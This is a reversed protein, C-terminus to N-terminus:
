EKEKIHIILRDEKHLSSPLHYVDTIRTNLISILKNKSIDKWDCVDTNNHPGKGFLRFDDIIIIAKGQFMDNISTCEEELPCDKKGKGTDDASWHGDLFFICNNNILPAIATLTDSSDGLIFNIKNGNYKKRTNNYYHPAIEITYLENFYPEMNLITEGMFTGTEVFTKYNRYDDKLQSFFDKSLSPM